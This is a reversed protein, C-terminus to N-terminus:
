SIIAPVSGILAVTPDFRAFMEDLHQRKIEIDIAVTERIESPRVEGVLQDRYGCRRTGGAPQEQAPFHRYAELFRDSFRASQLEETSLGASPPDGVETWPSPPIRVGAVTARRGCKSHPEKLWESM